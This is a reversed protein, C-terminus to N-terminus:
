CLIRQEGWGGTYKKMLTQITTHAYDTYGTQTASLTHLM